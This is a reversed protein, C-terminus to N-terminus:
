HYDTLTVDHAGGDKWKFIIRYQKNIRISHWGALNGKLAELQNSPPAALDQLAHAADIIDVKRCAVAWLDRPLTGRADKSNVGHYIDETGKDGFSVIVGRDYTRGAIVDLTM